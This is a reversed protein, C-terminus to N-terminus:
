PRIGHTNREWARKAAVHPTVGLARGLGMM